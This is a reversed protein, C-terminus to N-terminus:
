FTPLVVTVRVSVPTNLSSCPRRVSSNLIIRPSASYIPRIPGMPRGIPGMQGIRGMWHLLKRLWEPPGGHRFQSVVEDAVFERVEVLLVEVAEFDSAVARAVAVDVGLVAVWAELAGPQRDLKAAQS